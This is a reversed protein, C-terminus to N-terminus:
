PGPREASGAWRSRAPTPRSRPMAPASRSRARGPTPTPSTACRAPVGVGTGIASSVPEAIVLGSGDIEIAAGSAISTAGATTGSRPRARSGCSGASITTVGSYTNAGSLTLTGGGNKVLTGTGTAIVGGCRPAPVASPSPEPEDRQDREITLTGADSNVTTAGTLTIAGSWTNANALNRLAGGSSVGTGVLVTIPEAIALGSGDIEIAAGTTFTTAGATHGLAAANQVRVVGASITTVGSYTNTGSLTLTGTGAKTLAGSGAIVGDYTLTTGAGISFTGTGTLAIGRNPNLTLTATTTLTATGITLHGPTPSGPPTGLASGAAISVVGASITTAGTYTSM